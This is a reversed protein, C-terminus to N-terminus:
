KQSSIGGGGGVSVVCVLANVCESHNNYVYGNMCVGICYVYYMVTDNVCVNM